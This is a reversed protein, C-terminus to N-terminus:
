PNVLTGASATTALNLIPVVGTQPMQGFPAGKDMWARFDQICCYSVVTPTPWSANFQLALVSVKEHMRIRLSEYGPSAFYSKILPLLEDEKGLRPHQFYWGHNKFIQALREALGFVFSPLVSLARCADGLIELTLPLDGSEIKAWASPTIGVCDAILGPHINSELRIERLTLLILTTSSANYQM